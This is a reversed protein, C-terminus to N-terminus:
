FTHVADVLIKLLLFVYTEYAKIRTGSPSPDQTSFIGVSALWGTVFLSLAVYICRVMLYRFFRAEDKNKRDKQQQHVLMESESYVENDKILNSENNRNFIYSFINKKHTSKIKINKRPTAKMVGDPGPGFLIAFSFLPIYIFLFLLAIPPPLSPPISLPLACAIMPWFSMSLCCVSIFAGVQLSNVLYIRGMHIGELLASLKLQKINGLENDDNNTNNNFNNNNKDVNNNYNNNIANNANNSYM